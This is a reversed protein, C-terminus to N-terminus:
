VFWAHRASRRASAGSLLASGSGSGWASAPPPTKGNDGDSDRSTAAITSAACSTWRSGCAGSGGPM